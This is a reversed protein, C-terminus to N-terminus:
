CEIGAGGLCGLFDSSFSGVTGRAVRRKCCKSGDSLVLESQNQNQSWRLYM